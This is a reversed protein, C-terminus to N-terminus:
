AHQWSCLTVQPHVKYILKSILINIFLSFNVNQFLCISLKQLLFFCINRGGVCVCVHVCVCVWVCVNIYEHLILCNVTSQLHSLLTLTIHSLLNRSFAICFHTKWKTKNIGCVLLWHHKHIQTQETNLVSTSDKMWTKEDMCKEAIISLSFLSWFRSLTLLLSTLTRFVFDIIICTDCNKCCILYHATSFLVSGINGGIKVKYVWTM